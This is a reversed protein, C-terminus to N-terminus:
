YISYLFAYFDVKIPVQLLRSLGANLLFDVHPNLTHVKKKQPTKQPAVAAPDVDLYMEVLGEDMFPADGGFDFGLDMGMDADDFM